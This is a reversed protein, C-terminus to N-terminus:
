YPFTWTFGGFLLLVKRVTDGHSADKLNCRTLKAPAFRFGLVGNGPNCGAMQNGVSVAVLLVTVSPHSLSYM